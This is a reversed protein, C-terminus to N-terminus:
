EIKKWSKLGGEKVCYATIVSDRKEVIQLVPVRWFRWGPSEKTMCQLQLHHENAMEFFGNTDLNWKEQAIVFGISLQWKRNQCYMKAIAKGYM